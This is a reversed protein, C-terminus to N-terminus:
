PVHASIFDILRKHSLGHARAVQKVSECNEFFDFFHHWFPGWFDHKKMLFSGKLGLPEISLDMKTSKPHNPFDNNKRHRKPDEFFGYFDLRPRRLAAVPVDPRPRPYWKETWTSGPRARASPLCFVPIIFFPM